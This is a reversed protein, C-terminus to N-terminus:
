LLCNAKKEREPSVISFNGISLHVIWQYKVCKQNIWSRCVSKLSEREGFRSCYWSRFVKLELITVGCSKKSENFFSIVIDMECTQTVPNLSEDFCAVFCCLKKIDEYLLSKFFPALGFDISYRMKDAGLKFSKALQSDIFMCSFLHNLNASSNNSYGSIVGM